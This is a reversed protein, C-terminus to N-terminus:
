ILLVMLLIFFSDVKAYGGPDLTDIGLFHGIGLPVFVAGLRVAMMDEIDSFFFFTFYFPGYNIIHMRIPDSCTKVVMGM